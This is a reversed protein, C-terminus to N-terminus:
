DIAAAPAPPLPAATPPELPVLVITTFLEAVRSPDVTVVPVRLTAPASEDIMRVSAPETAREPPTDTPAASATFVIVFSLMACTPELVMVCVPAALTLLLFVSAMSASAAAAAPEVPRDIEPETATLVIVFSVMASISEALRSPPVVPSTDTKAESLAEILLMDPAAAKPPPVLTPTATAELMM